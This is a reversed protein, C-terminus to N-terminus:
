RVSCERWISNYRKPVIRRAVGNSLIRFIVFITSERRKRGSMHRLVKYTMTLKLISVPRAENGNGSGQKVRDVLEALDRAVICREDADAVLARTSFLLLSQAAQATRSVPPSCSASWAKRNIQSDRLAVYIRAGDRGGLALIELRVAVICVFQRCPLVTITRYTFSYTNTMLLLLPIHMITDIERPDYSTYWHQSTMPQALSKPPRQTYWARTSSILICPCTATPGWPM